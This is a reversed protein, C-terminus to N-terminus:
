GVKISKTEIGAVTLFQELSILEDLQKKINEIVDQGYDEPLEKLHQHKLLLQRSFGRM